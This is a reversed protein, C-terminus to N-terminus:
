KAPPVGQAIKHMAWDALGEETVPASTKAFRFGQGAGPSALDGAFRSDPAQQRNSTATFFPSAAAPKLPQLPTWTGTPSAGTAAVAGRGETRNASGSSLATNTAQNGALNPLIPAVPRKLAPPLLRKPSTKVGGSVNTVQA